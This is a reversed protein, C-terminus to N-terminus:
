LRQARILDVGIMKEAANPPLGVVMRREATIAWGARELAALFRPAHIRAPDTMLVAGGPRVVMELLSAIDGYLDPEYLIDAAIVLNFTEDCHWNRWDAWRVELNVANNLAANRRCLALAEYSHDTQVVHGGLSAAVLGALGTGAGLELVSVDKLGGAEALADALVIASEWLLVGFPFPECDGAAALLREHDRAAAIRYVARGAEVAMIELPLAELRREAARIRDDLTAM